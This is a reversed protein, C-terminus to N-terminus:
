PVGDGVGKRIEALRRRAEADGRALLEEETEARAPRPPGEAFLGGGAPPDFLGTWGQTISQEISAVAGAEGWAALKKLQLEVTSPKLAQRKERRFAAWRAYAARFAETDLGPPYAIEAGAAKARKGRKRVRGGRSPPCPPDKSDERSKEERFTVTVDSEAPHPTVKKKGGPHNERFRAQRIANKQRYRDDPLDQEEFFNPFVGSLDDRERFWGVMAMAAGFGPLDALTDITDTTCWKVVLDDGERKGRERAIGWTKLLATVCLAVTVRVPVHEHATEECRVGFPGTLWDMYARDGGLADAMSVVKPDDALLVRMKLWDNAM